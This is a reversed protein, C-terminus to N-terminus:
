HFGTYCCQGVSSSRLAAPWWIILLRLLLVAPNWLDQFSLRVTSSRLRSLRSVGVASFAVFFDRGLALALTLAKAPVERLGALYQSPCSSTMQHEQRRSSKRSATLLRVHPRQRVLVSTAKLNNPGTAARM